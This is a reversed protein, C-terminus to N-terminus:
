VDTAHTMFVLVSGKGKSGNYGTIEDAPVHTARRGKRICLFSNDEDRQTAHNRLPNMAQLCKQAETGFKRRRGSTPWCFRWM